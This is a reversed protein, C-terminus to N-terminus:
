SLSNGGREYLDERLWRRREPEAGEPLPRTWFERSFTEFERLALDRRDPIVIEVATNAPLAPPVPEDLVITTGDFHGRLRTMREFSWVSIAQRDTRM